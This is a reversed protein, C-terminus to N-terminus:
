FQCLRGCCLNLGAKVEDVGGVSPAADGDADADTPPAFLRRFAHEYEWLFGTLLVVVKRRGAAAATAAGVFAGAALSSMAAGGSKGVGGKDDDDDDGDEEDEGLPLLALAGLEDVLYNVGGAWRALQGAGADLLVVAGAIAGAISEFPRRAPTSDGPPTAPPQPPATTTTIPTPPLAFFSAHPLPPLPPPPPLPPHMKQNLMKIKVIEQRSDISNPRTISHSPTSPAARDISKSDVLM